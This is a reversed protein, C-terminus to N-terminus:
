CDPYAFVCMFVCVQHNKRTEARILALTSWGVLLWASSISVTRISTPSSENKEGVSLGLLSVAVDFTFISDNSATAAVALADFLYAPKKSVKM